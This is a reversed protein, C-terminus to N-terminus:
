VKIYAVNTSEEYEVTYDWLTIEVDNEHETNNHTFDVFKCDYERVYPEKTVLKMIINVTGLLCYLVTAM